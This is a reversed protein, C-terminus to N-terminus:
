HLDYNMEGRRTFPHAWHIEGDFGWDIKKDPCSVRSVGTIWSKVYDASNEITTLKVGARSTVETLAEFLYGGKDEFPAEIIIEKLHQFQHAESLIPVARGYLSQCLKDCLLIFELGDHIQFIHLQELSKPLLQHLPRGSNLVGHQDYLRWFRGEFYEMKAETQVLYGASIRLRKLHRLGTLNLPQLYLDEYVKRACRNFSLELCTLTQSTYQLAQSLDASKLVWGKKKTWGREYIFTELKDAAKLLRRLNLADLTCDRLELNILRRFNRYSPRVLLPLNTWKTGFVHTLTPIQLLVMLWDIDASPFTGDIEIKLHTLKSLTPTRVGALAADGSNDKSRISAMSVLVREVLSWATTTPDRPPDDSEMPIELRELAPLYGLLVAVLADSRPINPELAQEMSEEMISGLPLKMTANVIM